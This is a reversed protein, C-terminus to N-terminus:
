EGFRYYIWGDDIFYAEAVVGGLLPSIYGGSLAETNDGVYVLGKERRDEEWCFFCYPYKQNKPTHFPGTHTHSAWISKCKCSSFIQEVKEITSESINLDIADQPDYIGVIKGKSSQIDCMENAVANFAEVNEGYLSIVDVKAPKHFIAYFLLLVVAVAIVKKIHRKMCNLGEFSQMM